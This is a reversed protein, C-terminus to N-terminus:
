VDSERVTIREFLRPPALLEFDIDIFRFRRDYALLLLILDIVGIVDRESRIM